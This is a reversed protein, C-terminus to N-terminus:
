LTTFLASKRTKVWVSLKPHLRGRYQIHYFVVLLSPAPHLYFITLVRRANQASQASADHTSITTVHEVGGVVFKETVELCALSSFNQVSM